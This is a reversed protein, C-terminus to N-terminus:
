RRPADVVPACNTRGQAMCDDLQRQEFMANVLWIGGGILVVAFLLLVLNGIRRDRETEVYDDERQASAPGNPSSTPEKPKQEDMPGGARSEAISGGGARYKARRMNKIPSGTGV